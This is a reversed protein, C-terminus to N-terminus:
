WDHKIITPKMKSLENMYEDFDWKLEVEFGVPARSVHFIQWPEILWEDAEKEADHAIILVQQKRPRNKNLLHLGLEIRYLKFYDETDGLLIVVDEDSYTGATKVDGTAKQYERVEPLLRRKGKKLFVSNGQAAFKVAALQAFHVAEGYIYVIGCTYFTIDETVLTWQTLMDTLWPWMDSTM